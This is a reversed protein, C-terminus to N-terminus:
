NIFIDGNMGPHFSCIYQVLQEALEATLLFSVTDGERVLEITEDDDLLGPQNSQGFLKDGDANRFDLPHGSSNDNIFVFREGENLTMDPNNVGTEAEAGDGQISEIIYAQAGSHTLNIITEPVAEPPLDPEEDASAPDDSCAQLALLAICITTLKLIASIRM